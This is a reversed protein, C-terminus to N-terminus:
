AGPKSIFARSQASASLDLRVISPKLRSASLRVRLASPKEGTIGPTSLRGTPKGRGGGPPFFYSSSPRRVMRWFEQVCLWGFPFIM